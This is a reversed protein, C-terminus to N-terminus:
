KPQSGSVYSVGVAPPEVAGGGSPPFNSAPYTSYSSGSLTFDVVSNGTKCPASSRLATARTSSTRVTASGSFRMRSTPPATVSRRRLRGRLRCGPVVAMGVNTSSGYRVCKPPAVHPKGAVRAEQARTRPVFRATRAACPCTPTGSAGKASTVFSVLATGLSPGYGFIWGHYPAATENVASGFAAYVMRAPSGTDPNSVELLASRHM